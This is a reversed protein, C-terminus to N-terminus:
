PAATRCVLVVPVGAGKCVEELGEAQLVGRAQRATVWVLSETGNRDAM